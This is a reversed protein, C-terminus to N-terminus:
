GPKRCEKPRWAAPDPHFVGSALGRRIHEPVTASYKEAAAPRNHWEHMSAVIDLLWARGLRVHGCRCGAPFYVPPGHWDDSFAWNLFGCRSEGRALNTIALYREGGGALPLRYVDALSCGKRPCRVMCVIMNAQVRRPLKILWNAAEYSRDWYVEREAPLDDYPGNAPQEGLEFLVCGVVERGKWPVIVMDRFSDM